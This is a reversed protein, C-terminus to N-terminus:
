KKKYFIIKKRKRKRDELKVRVMRRSSAIACSGVDFKM